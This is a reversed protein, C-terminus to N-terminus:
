PWRGAAGIAFPFGFGYVAILDRVYLGTAAKRETRQERFTPRFTSSRSVHPTLHESGGTTSGFVLHPHEIVDFHRLPWPVAPQDHNIAAVLNYIQAVPGAICSRM